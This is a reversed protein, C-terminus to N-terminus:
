QFLNINKIFWSIQSDREFITNQLFNFCTSTVPRTYLIYKNKKFSLTGVICLCNQLQLRQPTFYGQTWIIVFGMM